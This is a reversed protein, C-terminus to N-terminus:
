NFRSRESIPALDGFIKMRIEISSWKVLSSITGVSSTDLSVRPRAGMCVIGKLMRNEEM